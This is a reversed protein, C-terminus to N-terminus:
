TATIADDSDTKTCVPIDGSHHTSNMVRSTVVVMCANRCNQRCLCVCILAQQVDACDCCDESRHRRCRQLEGEIHRSPRKGVGHVRTPEGRQYETDSSGDIAPESHAPSLRRLLDIIEMESELGIM